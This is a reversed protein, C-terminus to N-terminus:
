NDKIGIPLRLKWVLDEEESAKPMVKKDYHHAVRAKNEHIKRLAYLRHQVIDELEDMM